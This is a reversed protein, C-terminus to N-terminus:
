MPVFAIQKAWTHLSLGALAIIEYNGFLMWLHLRLFLFAPKAGLNAFHFFPVEPEPVKHKDHM